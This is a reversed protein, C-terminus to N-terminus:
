DADAKTGNDSCGERNETRSGTSSKPPAAGQEGGTRGGIGMPKGLLCCIVM